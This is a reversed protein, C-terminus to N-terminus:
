KEEVERTGRRAGSKHDKLVWTQDYSDLRYGEIAERSIGLRIPFGEGTEGGM